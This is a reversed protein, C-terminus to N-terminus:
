QQEGIYKIEIVRVTREDKGSVREGRSVKMTGRMGGPEGSQGYGKGGVGTERERWLSEVRGRTTEQHRQFEEEDGQQEGGENKGLM